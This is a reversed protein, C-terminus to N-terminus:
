DTKPRDFEITKSYNMVLDINSFFPGRIEYAMSVVKKKSGKKKGVQLTKMLTPTDFTDVDSVDFQRMIAKAMAAKGMRAGDPNTALKDMAQDVKIKENYLPFMRMVFLAATGLVVCGMILGSLTIGKQNRMLKM